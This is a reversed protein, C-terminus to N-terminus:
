GAVGGPMRPAVSATFFLHRECLEGALLCAFGFFAAVGLWEGNATDATPSAALERFAVFSVIGALGLAYRAISWRRLPGMLLMASRKLPTNNRAGLHAFQLAEFGLKVAATILLAQAVASASDRLADHAEAQTTLAQAAFLLLISGALGLVVTTLL